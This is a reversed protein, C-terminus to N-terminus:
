SLKLKLDDKYRRSLNLRTGNKLQIEGDGSPLYRIHEIAGHNVAHSRHVRSFNRKALRETLQSLTSRLPYIRGGAYLNVYNGSAEMWDIEDVKVLFERDLKKVILHEPVDQNPTAASEQEILNAEGKLRSYIANFLYFAILFFLYGWLDKRYEYLFERLLPGFEYQSGVQWYILKRVWVMITVHVISFIISLSLHIAIQQPLRTITRPLKQWLWFLFPLILLSGFASSYEWVFPEWLAFEPTGDRTTEMWDSSANITNNIFIYSFIIVTLFTKKRQEFREFLTM